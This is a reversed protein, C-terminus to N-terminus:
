GALVAGLKAAADRQMDPLAHSYVDLTMSAKAHGLRDAVVHVPVGAALLLTASTHRLGHFKIRRVGAARIVRAYHRRALASCPLGLETTSTQQDEPEMAFVLGHDRYVTRNAMLLERQHQRHTRLRSVTEADLGITRPKGAKLDVFGLKADPALQRDIKVSGADLDVRDWTLGLLENRRAGTDLALAFFASVQPGADKAAARARRAEDASWCHARAGRGQDKSARPRDEVTTAPNALLLKDRVATKFARHIVAHVLDISRPALKLTMYFGELDTACIKQIPMTGIPAKAVHTEILSKYIRATLPRRTPIVKKTHWDRLYEILTMKSRAVYTGEEMQDIMKALAKEAEAHAKCSPSCLRDTCAASHRRTSRFKVWQQKRKGSIPDRGRDVVLAWTTMSRRVISGRM